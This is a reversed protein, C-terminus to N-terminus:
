ESRQIRRRRRALLGMAGMGILGLSTPEPVAEVMVALDNGGTLAGTAYNADYDLEFQFYGLVPSNGDYYIAGANPGTGQGTVYALSGDFEVNTFQTM